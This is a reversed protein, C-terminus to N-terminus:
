TSCTQFNCLGAAHRASGSAPPHISLARCLCVTYQFLAIRPAPPWMATIRRHVHFHPALVLLTAIRKRFGMKRWALGALYVVGCFVLVVVCPLLLWIRQMGVSLLFTEISGALNGDRFTQQDNLLWGWVPDPPDSGMLARPPDRKRGRSEAIGRRNHSARVRRDIRHSPTRHSPSSGKATIRQVVRRNYSCSSQM